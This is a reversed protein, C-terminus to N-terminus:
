AGIKLLEQNCAQLPMLKLMGVKSSGKAAGMCLQLSQATAAKGGDVFAKCVSNSADCFDNVITSFLGHIRLLNWECAELGDRLMVQDYCNAVGKKVPEFLDLIPGYKEAFLSEIEENLEPIESEL